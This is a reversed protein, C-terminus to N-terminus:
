APRETTRPGTACNPARKWPMSSTTPEFGVLDVLNEWVFQEPRLVAFGADQPKCSKPLNINHIESTVVASAMFCNPRAFTTQPLHVKEWQEQELWHAARMAKTSGVAGSENGQDLGVFRSALSNGTARRSRVVIM